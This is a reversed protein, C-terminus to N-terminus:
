FNNSEVLLSGDTVIIEGEKLGSEIFVQKGVNQYPKVERKEFSTKTLRVMVYYHNNDFIVSASPVALIKNDHKIFVKIVCFMEPKLLGATNDLVIRVKLTKTQPDLLSGVQNITGKFVKDNYALTTIDVDDGVKVKSLDSEYVDALVWVSELSSVTYISSSNDSRVDMNESINKEVVYGDNPAIVRYEADPLDEKAGYIALQQKLRNADAQAKKYDNQANLYEKESNVNTKYLEQAIEMNKKALDLSSLAVQYQNQFDSIDASRLIALVDGRKVKDGLSANVKIVQGSVLPFVKAVKDEDFSVKGTLTLETQENVKKATDTKIQPLQNESLDIINDTTNTGDKKDKESNCSFFSLCAPFFALVILIKKTRM